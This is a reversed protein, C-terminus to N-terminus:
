NRTAISAWTRCFLWELQSFLLAKLNHYELMVLIIVSTISPKLISCESLKQLVSKLPGESLLHEVTDIDASWKVSKRNTIHQLLYYFVAFVKTNNLL